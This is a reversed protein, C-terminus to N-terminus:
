VDFVAFVCCVHQVFYALGDGVIVHADHVRAAIRFGRVATNM